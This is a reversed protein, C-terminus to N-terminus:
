PDVREPRDGGTRARVRCRRVRAHDAEPDPRLKGARTAADVGETLSVVAAGPSDLRTAVEILHRLSRRHQDRRWVVVVANGNGLLDLMGDLAPRDQLAGCANDVFIGQCLRSAALADRQLAEDQM